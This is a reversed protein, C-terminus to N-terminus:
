VKSEQEQVAKCLIHVLAAANDDKITLRSEWARGLAMVVTGLGYTNVLKRLLAYGARNESPNVSLTQWKPDVDYLKILLGEVMDNMGLDRTPSDAPRGPEVREESKQLAEAMDFAEEPVFPGTWALSYLNTRPGQTAHYRHEVRVCGAEILQDLYNRVSRPSVAMRAGLTEQSPFAVPKGPSGYSLLMAYLRLTSADLRELVWTPIAVFPTAEVHLQDM